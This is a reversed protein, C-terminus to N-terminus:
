QKWLVAVYSTTTKTLPRQARDLIADRGECKHLEQKIQPGVPRWLKVERWNAALFVLAAWQRFGAIRNTLVEAATVHNAYHGTVENAPVQQTSPCESTSVNLLITCLRLMIIPHNNSKPIDHSTSLQPFAPRCNTQKHAARAITTLAFYVSKNFHRTHWM